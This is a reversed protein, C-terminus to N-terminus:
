TGFEYIGPQRRLFMIKMQQRNPLANIYDALAKDTADGKTHVFNPVRSKLDVIYSKLTEIEVMELEKLTKLLDLSRTNSFYCREEINEIYDSASLLEKHFSEKDEVVLSLETMLATNESM